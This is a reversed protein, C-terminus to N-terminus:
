IWFEALLEFFFLKKLDKEIGLEEFFVTECKSFRAEEMTGLTVFNYRMSWLCMYIDEYRDSIGARGLDLFGCVGDDDLFVNPLCYDGHSFVFDDQPINQSLYSFLSEFDPFETHSPFLNQLSGDKIKQEAETLMSSITRKKPCDSIDTQWLMKLGKALLRSVEEEPLGHECAMNGSQRTMLLYNFGNEREFAIVRPVPLKGDLWLLMEHESDSLESTKEMKLVRDSFVLVSSDSRGIDDTHFDENKLHRAVSSPITFGNIQMM